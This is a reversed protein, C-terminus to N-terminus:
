SSGTRREILRKVYWASVALQVLRHLGIAAAIGELGFLNAGVLMAVLLFALTALEIGFLTGPHGLAVLARLVPANVIVFVMALMYVQFATTAGVFERGAVLEILPRAAVATVVWMALSGVGVLGCFRRLLRKFGDYDGAASARALETFVVQEFPMFIRGPITGLQKVVRFLGSAIKGLLAGVVLMDLEATTKKVTLQANTTVLFRGIGPFVARTNRLSRVRWGGFGCAGAVWFSSVTVIVNGIVEGVILAIVFGDFSANNLAAVGVAIAIVGAALSSSIAQARYADCLRFIGDSAGITRTVLTVSYVACLTAEHDNWGFADPLVFAIGTVALAAVGATVLDIVTALKIVHEVKDRENHALAETGYKVVAQWTNFNAYQEAIAVVTRILAIVGFQAPGLNRALLAMTVLGAISMLLKGIFAPIGFRVVKQVARDRLWDLVRVM